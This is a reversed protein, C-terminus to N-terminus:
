PWTFGCPPARRRRSRVQVLDCVANAIWLGRGGLQEADPRTGAPWRTARDPRPRPGRLGARRRRALHAPDRPRRRPPHQQRGARRRRARPGRAREPELEAACQARDARRVEALTDLEFGLLRAHAPPPPLPSEFPALLREADRYAHSPSRRRRASPQLAGRPRRERRAGVVDYPCLLTFGDAEAFAVNLLAEHLQCEVLEAGRQPRGLDARRHRPGPRRPPTWSSAGPPSSGRRTTASCPWTPSSWASPTPASRTACRARDERRRGRGPGARRARPRRPHVAARRRAAGDPGDYLLAEHSFM